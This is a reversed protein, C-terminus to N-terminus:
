KTFMIPNKESNAWQLPQTSRLIIIFLTMVNNTIISVFIYIFLITLSIYHTIYANFLNGGLVFSIWRVYSSGESTRIIIIFIYTYFDYLYTRVRVYTRM